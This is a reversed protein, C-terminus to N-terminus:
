RGRSVDCFLLRLFSLLLASFGGLISTKRVFRTRTSFSPIGTDRKWFVCCVVRCAMQSATHNRDDRVPPYGNLLHWYARYSNQNSLCLCWVCVSCPRSCFQGYGPHSFNGSKRRWGDNEEDPFHQLCKSDSRDANGHYVRDCCDGKRM